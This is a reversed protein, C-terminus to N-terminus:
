ARSPSRRGIVTIGAEEVKMREISLDSAECWARVEEPTQRHAYTPRFWDFNVHNMEDLSFDPRYYAKFLYWYFFRQLNIRGKPIELLDIDEPVDIELDLEGLVQGLRTLPMLSDWAEEPSLHALRERVYDDTFERIPAKEKYVYIAFLGGPKVMRATAAVARETSPTHHLVGESFVIDFSQDRLPLAMINAQLFLAESVVPAIRERAIDVADSIDAGVYRIQEFDKEFLLYAANGAGCGADLILPKESLDDDLTALLDGYREKLWARTADQMADSQYTERKGWKFAFSDRTQIQDADSVAFDRLVGRELTLSRGAYERTQGEAPMPGGLLSDAWQGIM